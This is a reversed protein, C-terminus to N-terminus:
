ADTNVGNLSDAVAQASDFEDFYSTGEVKSDYEDVVIYWFAGTMPAIHGRVSFMQKSGIIFKACVEMQMYKLGGM